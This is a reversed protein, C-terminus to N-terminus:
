EKAKIKVAATKKITELFIGFPWLILTWLGVYLACVAFAIPNLPGVLYAHLGPDGGLIGYVIFLGVAIIVAVLFWLRAVSPTKMNKKYETKFHEVREKFLVRRSKEASEKM